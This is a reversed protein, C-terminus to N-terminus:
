RPQGRYRTRIPRLYRGRTCVACNLRELGHLCLSGSDTRPQPGPPSPPGAPGLRSRNARRAAMRAREVTAKATQDALRAAAIARERQAATQRALQERERAEHLLEALPVPAQPTEGLKALWKMDVTTARKRLAGSAPNTKPRRIKRAKAPQHAVLNPAQNGPPSPIEAREHWCRGCRSCRRRGCTSCRVADKLDTSQGCGSFGCVFLTM